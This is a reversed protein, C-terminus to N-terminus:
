LSILGRRAGQSVAEARNTVGLKAYVSSVHFKVTHESISLERAILKNPLGRGVLALVEDERATLPESLAEVAASTGLLRETLSPPLVVLGRGVAAAAAGLEEPPADPPVIGWGRLPLSRLKGVAGEDDTLVLLAQRADEGDDTLSLAAEELLDEDALLVVDAGSLAPELEAGALGAAQGVVEVDAGDVAALMSRLGARMVPSPAVVFVRTSPAAPTM